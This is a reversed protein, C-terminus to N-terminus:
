GKVWWWYVSNGGGGIGPNEEWSIM